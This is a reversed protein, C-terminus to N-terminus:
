SKWKAFYVPTPIRELLAHAHARLAAACDYGASPCIPTIYPFSTRLRHVMKMHFHMYDDFQVELQGCVVPTVAASDQGGHAGM